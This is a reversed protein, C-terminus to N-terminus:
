TMFVILRDRIESSKFGFRTRIFDITDERYFFVHTPDDKYYWKDFDTADALLNTKCILQGGGKLMRRLRHFEEDPHHFHEIVECLVIFDYTNLFVSRDPCFYPDFRDLTYGHRKLMFSIVPGTGCGYDLGQSTAPFNELVHDVVLSVSRQYGPDNVDNNHENYRAKEAVEGLRSEPALFVGECAPCSLYHGHRGTRFPEAVSTCLPCEIGDTTM